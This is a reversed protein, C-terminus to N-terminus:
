EPVYGMSALYKQTIDVIDRATIIGVLRGSSDVVPLHRIKRESMLELARILPEDSRVTVPNRTMVSGLKTDYSVGEGVVRALDRETFIGIVVGEPTVVVVSGTGKSSMLAAAERITADPGLSAVDKRAVDGVKSTWPSSGSSGAM